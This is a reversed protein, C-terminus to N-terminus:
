KGYSRKELYTNNSTGNAFYTEIGGGDHGFAPQVIGRQLTDWSKPQIYFTWKIAENNPLAYRDIPDDGYNVCDLYDQKTTTYTGDTLKKNVFDIRKDDEYASLRVFIESGNAYEATNDIAGKGGSYRHKNNKKSENMIRTEFISKKSVLSISETTASFSQVENLIRSFGKTIIQSKCESFNSDLDVILRAHKRIMEFDYVSHKTTVVVVDANSLNEASLEVSSLLHNDRTTIQPIYPDNYSAVGGKKIIENIIEL